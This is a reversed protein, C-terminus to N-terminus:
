WYCIPLFWYYYNEQSNRDPVTFIDKEQSVALREFYLIEHNSVNKRIRPVCRSWYSIKFHLIVTSLICYNRYNIRATIDSSLMSFYQLATSKKLFALLYEYAKKNIQCRECKRELPLLNNTAIAGLIPEM